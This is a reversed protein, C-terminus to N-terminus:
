LIPMFMFQVRSDVSSLIGRNYGCLQCVRCLTETNGSWHGHLSSWTGTRRGTCFFRPTESHNWKSQALITIQGHAEICFRFLSYSIMSGYWFVVFAIMYDHEWCCWELVYGNLKDLRRLWMRLYDWNRVCRRCWCGRNLFWINWCCPRKACKRGNWLWTWLTDPRTWKRNWNDYDNCPNHMQEGPREHVVYKVDDSVFSPIPNARPWNM